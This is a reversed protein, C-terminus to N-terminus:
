KQRQHSFCLTRGGFRNAHTRCYQFVAETVVVGCIACIPSSQDSLTPMQDPVSIMESTPPPSVQKLPAPMPKAKPIEVATTLPASATGPKHRELLFSEIRSLEEDSWTYGGVKASPSLFASLSNAKQHQSYITRVREVVQDAKLVEKPVAAKSRPREIIGCDSIAVLIDLEMGGFRKQFGVIKGLLGGAHANLYKKLFEAQRQAQLIPSPMGQAVRGYWRMWEGQDNVEVKTAVSKSEIIIVGYKHLVLHDIQAVDEGFVLRLGNFVLLAPSDKFARRLYFAMQEEAKQGAVLRADQVAIAEQNKVIM